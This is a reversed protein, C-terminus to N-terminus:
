VIYYLTTWIHGPRNTHLCNVTQGPSIQVVKYINLASNTRSNPALSSIQASSPRSLFPVSLLVYPLAKHETSRILYWEPWWVLFVSIPLAYLLYSFHMCPKSPSVQPFSGAQFVWAYIPPYKFRIKSFHFPPMSQISRAWYLPVPPPTDQICYHVKPIWLIRPIGQNASSRNAELAPKHQTSYILLYTYLSWLKRTVEIANCSPKARCTFPLHYQSM